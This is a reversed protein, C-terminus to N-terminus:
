ISYPRRKQEEQNNKISQVISYIFYACLGIGLLTCALKWNGNSGNNTDPKIINPQVQNFKALEPSKLIPKTKFEPLEDPLPLHSMNYHDLHMQKILENM